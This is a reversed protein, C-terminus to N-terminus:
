RTEAVGSLLPARLGKLDVVETVETDLDHVLLRHNNTDVIYLRSGDRSLGRPENLPGDPVDLLWTEVELTEPDLRKLADNYTDSLVVRGDPLAELDLPHQLRVASGVGDRDGFEFLGEGVLTESAGTEATVVRIASAETDAVYLAVGNLGLALGSPQSYGTVEADGDVLRELGNGSFVRLQGTDPAFRYLQHSGAMAVVLENGVPELAWPSRLATATADMWGDDITHRGVGKSGTGAVTTVVGTEMDVRRITHNETDAIYLAGGLWATGQPSSFSAEEISGDVWGRFGTGILTAESAGSELLVVRHHGTDTLAVSGDASATVSTPYLLATKSGANPDRNFDKVVASLTGSQAAEDLLDTVSAQMTEYDFEGSLRQRIVGSADIVITTPWAQAAYAIMTAYEDDVLVPHHVDYRRIAESIHGADQEVDFKGSHVGLVVFPQGAFHEELARLDPLIHLCNVCGYTWFDILVVHGRLDALRVPADTNLWALGQDLEPAIAGIPDVFPSSVAEECGSILGVLLLWLCVARRISIIM